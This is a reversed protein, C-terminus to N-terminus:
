PLGGVSTQSTPAFRGAHLTLTRSTKRALEVDHTVLLLTAGSRATEEFLLDAVRQANDYDLSGTPEDACLIKPRHAFARAIAVRQQEGGSLQSGYHSERHTLGVRALLTHARDRAEDWLGAIELPLMVNELATLNAILNYQQFIFGIDRGRLVARERESLASLNNGLLTISGSTPIDLGACLALFTSKGSGSPGVIAVTEGQYVACSLDNVVPITRGGQTFSKSVRECRLAQPAGNETDHIM